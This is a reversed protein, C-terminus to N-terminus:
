VHARGIQGAGSEEAQAAAARLSDEYRLDNIYEDDEPIRAYGQSLLEVNLLSRDGWADELEEWEEWTFDELDEIEFDEVDEAEPWYLVYALNRGVVDTSEVDFVLEVLTGPPLAAQTYDSAELGYCDPQEDETFVEPTDVGLLRTSEEDGLFQVTDGDIVETVVGYENPPCSECGGETFIPVQDRSSCALLMLWM